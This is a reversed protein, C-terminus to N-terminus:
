IKSPSIDILTKQGNKFWNTEEQIVPTRQINDYLDKESLHNATIEEM